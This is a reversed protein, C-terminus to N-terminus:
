AIPHPMKNLTGGNDLYKQLRTGGDYMFNHRYEKKFTNPIIVRVVSYKMSCVRKDTLDILLPESNYKILCEKFIVNLKASESYNQQVEGGCKSKYWELVKTGNRWAYLLHHESTVIDHDKFIGYSPELQGASFNLMISEMIAKNVDESLNKGCSSGITLNEGTNKYLLSVIVPLSDIEGVNYLDVKMDNIDMWKKIYDPIYTKEVEKIPWNSLRWSLMINDREIVECIARRIINNYEYLFGSSIGSGESEPTDYHHPQVFTKWRPFVTFAPITYNLNSILGQANIMLKAVEPMKNIYDHLKEQKYPVLNVIDIKNEIKVSNLKESITNDSLACFREIMEMFCLFKSELPSRGMGASDITTISVNNYFDRYAYQIYHQSMYIDGQLMPTVDIDEVQSYEEKSLLAPLHTKLLLNSLM